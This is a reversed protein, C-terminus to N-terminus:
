KNSYQRAIIQTKPKLQLPLTTKFLMEDLQRAIYLKQFVFGGDNSHRPFVLRIGNVMLGKFRGIIVNVLKIFFYPHWKQCGNGMFFM